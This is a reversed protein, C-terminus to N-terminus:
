MTAQEFDLGWLWRLYYTHQTVYPATWHNKPRAKKLFLLESANDKVLYNAIADDDM